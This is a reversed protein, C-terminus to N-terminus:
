SGSRDRARQWSWAWGALFVLEGAMDVSYIRPSSERSLGYLDNSALMAASGAALARVEPSATPQRAGLACAGGVLVLWGRHARFIWPDSTLNHTAVYHRKAVVGWLGSVLYWAAQAGLLAREVTDQQAQRTSEPPRLRTGM